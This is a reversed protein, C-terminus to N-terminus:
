KGGVIRKFFNKFSEWFGSVAAEEFAVLLDRGAISVLGDIAVSM